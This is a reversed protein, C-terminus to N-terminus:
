KKTNKPVINIVEVALDEFYMDIIGQILINDNGVTQTCKRTCYWEYTWDKDVGQQEDSWGKPVFDNINDKYANGDNDVLGGEKNQNINIVFPGAYTCGTLIFTNILLFLKKM